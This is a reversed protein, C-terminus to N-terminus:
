SSQKQTLRRAPVLPTTHCHVVISAADDRRWGLTADGTTAYSNGAAQCSAAVAGDKLDVLFRSLFRVAGLVANFHDASEAPSHLLLVAIDQV